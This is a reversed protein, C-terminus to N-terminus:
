LSFYKLRPLRQHKTYEIDDIIYRNDIDTIGIILHDRYDIYDIVKIIKLKSYRQLRYEIIEVMGEIDKFM